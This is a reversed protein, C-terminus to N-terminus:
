DNKAFAITALSVKTGEVELLKITGAELTAGTTLVDDVLLIHKDKLLHPQPVHFAEIVNQFREIRSKETQTETYFKRHLGNELYPINMAESLGQAFVSSQNYGRMIEKKLHLPIPVILDIDQYLNSKSLVKGLMKGLNVGIQKKGKYKLNHILNQTNSKKYFYFLSSATHINVRGWFKKTFDNELFLHFDTRPLKFDCTTCIIQKPPLHKKGCSLCLRPYFLCFASDLSQQLIKMAVLNYLLM